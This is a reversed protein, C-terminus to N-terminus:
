QTSDLTDKPFYPKSNPAKRLIRTTDVANIEILKRLNNSANGFYKLDKKSNLLNPYKVTFKLYDYPGIISGDVNINELSEVKSFDSIEKTIDKGEKIVKPYFGKKYTEDSVYGIGYQNINFDNEQDNSRFIKVEGYFNEPIIIKYTARYEYSYLILYVISVFISAHSTLRWEKKVFNKTIAGLGFSLGLIIVAYLIALFWGPIIMTPTFLITKIIMGLSLLGIATIIIQSKSKTM